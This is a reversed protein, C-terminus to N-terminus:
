RCVPPSASPPALLPTLLLAINKDVSFLVVQKGFLPGSQDDRRFKSLRFYPWKNASFLAVGDDPSHATHVVRLTTWPTNAAAPQGCPPVTWLGDAM